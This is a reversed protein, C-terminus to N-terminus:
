SVPRVTQLPLIGVAYGAPESPWIFTLTMLPFLWPISDGTRGSPPHQNKWTVMSFDPAVINWSMRSYKLLWVLGYGGRPQGEMLSSTLQPISRMQIRYTNESMEAASGHSRVFSHKGTHFPATLM